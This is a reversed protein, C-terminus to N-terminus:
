GVLTRLSRQTFPQGRQGPRPTAAVVLFEEDEANVRRPRGDAWRPDLARMGLEHFRGLVERVPDQHAAVVRAIVPVSNSEASALVM